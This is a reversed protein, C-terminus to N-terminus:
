QNAPPTQTTAPTNVQDTPSGEPNTNSTNKRPGILDFMELITEIDRPARMVVNRMQAINPISPTPLAYPNNRSFLSM